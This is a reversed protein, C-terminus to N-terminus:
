KPSSARDVNLGTQELVFKVDINTHISHLRQEWNNKWKSEWSTNHFIRAYNGFGFSDSGHAFSKDLISKINNRIQEELQGELEQNERKNQLKNIQEGERIIGRGKVQISFEPTAGKLLTKIKFHQKTILISVYGGEVPYTLTKGKLCNKKLWCVGITENKKTEFKMTNDHFVAFSSISVKGHDYHVVPLIPDKGKSNIESLLERATVSFGMIKGIERIHESTIKDLESHAKLIDTIENRTVYVQTSLRSELNRNIFDLVETIGAKAINEHILIIRRHSFRLIRSSHNQINQDADLINRGMSTEVYYPNKEPSSGGNNTSMPIAILLSVQVGENVKKIGTALVVAVNNLERSDSCGSLLLTMFLFIATLCKILRM